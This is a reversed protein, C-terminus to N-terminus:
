MYFLYIYPKNIPSKDFNNADRILFVKGFRGDPARRRVKDFKYLTGTPKTVGGRM